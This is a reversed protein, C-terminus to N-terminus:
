LMPSVVGQEVHFRMGALPLGPTSSATATVILQAGLALVQEMLAALKNSDLEAAPDDLLLTGARGQLAKLLELQAIVLAAALLKQQGRSVRDKALIGELRLSLDARHPGVTTTRLKADRQWAGTLADALSMESVWGRTLTATVDLGLLSRAIKQLVPALTDVYESRAASILTGSSALEQDWVRVVAVPQGARLAANRQRLARQYRQWDTAFAHEVHFVGWDMTRRRAAPGEEILKHLNPDIVQVPFATALASLSEVPQGGIRAEISDRTARLGIVVPRRDSSLHGVVTLADSGSRVVRDLQRTRFSRGRGLFFIGELLSTKGSANPGTILTLKPDLRLDVNRLCRLDELQVALLPM